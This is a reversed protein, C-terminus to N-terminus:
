LDIGCKTTSCLDLKPPGKIKRLAINVHAIMYSVNNSVAVQFFYFFIGTFFVVLWKNNRHLDVRLLHTQQVDLDSKLLVIFQSWICLLSAISKTVGLAAALRSSKNLLGAVSAPALCSSKDLV